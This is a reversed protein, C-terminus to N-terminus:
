TADGLADNGVSRSGNELTSTAAPADTGPSVVTGSSVHSPVVDRQRTPVTLDVAGFPVLRCRVRPHCRLITPM